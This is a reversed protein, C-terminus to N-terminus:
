KKTILIPERLVKTSQLPNPRQVIMNLMLPGVEALMVIVAVNIRDPGGCACACRSLNCCNSDASVNTKEHCNFLNLALM